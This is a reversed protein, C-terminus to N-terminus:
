AIRETLTARRAQLDALRIRIAPSDLQEDLYLELLRSEQRALAAFQQRLHAAESRLEVERVGVRVTQVAFQAILVEPRRLLGAVTDWILKELPEAVERRRCRAGPVLPDRGTCRYVRRDRERDGHFRRGCAGCWLLGRLLYL